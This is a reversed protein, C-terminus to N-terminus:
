IVSLINVVNNQATLMTRLQQVKQGSINGCQLRFVGLFVRQGNDRVRQVAITVVFFRSVVIVGDERGSSVALGWDGDDGRGVCRGWDEGHRGGRRGNDGRRGDRRGEYHSNLSVSKIVILHCNIKLLLVFVVDGRAM